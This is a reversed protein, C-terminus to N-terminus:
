IAVMLLAAGFLRRQMIKRGLKRERNQFWHGLLWVLIVSWLGRSSYIVNMETARGYIAIGCIICLAQCAMLLAGPYLAKARKGTVFALPEELRPLFGLSYIAVFVFMIPLFRGLGWAPSWKQILVDFLAFSAGSLFATFITFGVKHHEGGTSNLLMVAGTALGAALWLEHSVPEATLLAQLGAVVIIKTGLVPTAVSVDGHEISVFMFIQGSLFVLAVLAPQYLQSWGPFSGGLSWLLAFLAATVLNTIFTSRWFGIGLESALKLYLLALVYLLSAALPFLLHM